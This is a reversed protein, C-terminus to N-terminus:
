TPPNTDRAPPAPEDQLAAILPCGPAAGHTRCAEVLEALAREMRRLEAIRRRVDALKDAALRGAEPCHTGDALQLLGAIERLRFSLGQATRIFRVRAVDDSGYRRVGGYPRPPQRLLGKRQYFRITEVHVGAARALTGITFGEERTPM